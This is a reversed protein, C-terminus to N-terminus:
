GHLLSPEVIHLHSKTNLPQLDSNGLFVRVLHCAEGGQLYCPQWRTIEVLVHLRRQTVTYLEKVHKYGGRVSKVCAVLLLHANSTNQKFPVSPRTKAHHLRHINVAQM